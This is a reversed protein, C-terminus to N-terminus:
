SLLWPFGSLVWYDHFVWIDWTMCLCIYISMTQFNQICIMGNGSSSFVHTTYQRRVTIYQWYKGIFWLSIKDIVFYCKAAVIYQTLTIYCGNSYALWCPMDYEAVLSTRCWRRTHVRINEYKLPTPKWPRLMTTTSTSAWDFIQRPLRLMRLPM